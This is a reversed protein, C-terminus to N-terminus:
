IALVFFCILSFDFFLFKTLTFTYSFQFVIFSLFIPFPCLANEKEVSSAIVMCSSKALLSIVMFLIACSTKVPVSM